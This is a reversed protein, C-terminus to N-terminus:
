SPTSVSHQIGWMFVSLIPDKSRIFRKKQQKAKIHKVKPKVGGGSAKTGRGPMVSERVRESWEEGFGALSLLWIGCSWLTCVRYLRNGLGERGELGLFPLLFPRPDLCVVRGGGGM